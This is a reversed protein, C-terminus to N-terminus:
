TEVMGDCCSSIGTGNCVPCPVPEHWRRCHGCYKEEVDRLNYSALGCLLCRIAAKCTIHNTLLAYTVVTGTGLCKDCRM